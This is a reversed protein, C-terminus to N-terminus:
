FAYTLPSSHEDTLAFGVCIPLRAEFEPLPGLVLLKTGDKLPAYITSTFSYLRFSDPSRSLFSPAARRVHVFLGRLPTAQAVERPLEPSATSVVNIPFSYITSLRDLEARTRDDPLPELVSQLLAVQGRASYALYESIRDRVHAGTFWVSLATAAILLLTMGLAIRLLLRTM